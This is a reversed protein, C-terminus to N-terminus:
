SYQQDEHKEANGNRRDGRDMSAIEEAMEQVLCFMEERAAAEHENMGGTPEYMSRHCDRLDGLTNEFRCYSMNAM